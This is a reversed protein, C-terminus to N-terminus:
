AIALLGAISILSDNTTTLKHALINKAGKLYHDQTTCVM